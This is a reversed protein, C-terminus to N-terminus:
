FGETIIIKKTAKFSEAQLEIIYVGSALNNAFEKVPMNHVGEHMLGLNYTAVRNGVIDYINIVTQSGRHLSFCIHSEYTLPNPFVELYNIPENQDLTGVIGSIRIDDIYLNNGGQSTMEFRVLANLNNALMSANVNQEKWQSSTPVFNSSIFAGDTTSLSAGSRIYRPTWTYGCNTSILVRLRDDSDVNRQAYAMKFTINVPGQIFNMDLNPTTLSHVSGEPLMFNRIRASASGSAAAVTTRAWGVPTHGEVTWSKDPEHSHNPFGVYEFGQFLPISEGGGIPNITIYQNKTKTDSGSANSVTLSVDYTGPLDYSVTPNQLNCTSPTGGPFSWSWTWTSDVEANYSADYFSIPTGACGQMNFARFKAIPPCPTTPYGDNTGTFVLNSPQWLNSRNGVTSNASAQMRLVQGQTFMRPCSAYDMFNQVNDLSGCTVQSLNCTLMTGITNPTDNVGDDDNCNSPLGPTNSHGWPHLLNFFHGIEHTLSRSAFSTGHSTGISGLQRHVLVIGRYNPNPSGGPLYTYGGANFSIKDVVWVNLYRDTDWVILNKVNNDANNTLQSVTRTIGNTCNGSPDKRALRFEFNADATIGQFEPIVDVIDSNHQRFDENLIRLADMIQADSINENGYNHIVHFVIPIIKVGKENNYLENEIYYQTFNELKQQKLRLEPNKMAELFLSDTACVRDNPHVECCGNQTYATFTFWFLMTATFISFRILRTTM